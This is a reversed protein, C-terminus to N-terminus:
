PIKKRSALRLAFRQLAGQVSDMFDAYDANLFSLRFLTRGLANWSGPFQRPRLKFAYSWVVHTGGEIPSFNFEGIAYEVPDAQRSTYNSVLYRLHSEDRELVEEEASNGDNLCVLRVSGVEPYSLATLSETHHVGPIAPTGPIFESLKGEYFFAPVFVSKPIAVDFAVTRTALVDTASPRPEERQAKRPWSTIPVTVLASASACGMAVVAVLLMPVIQVVQM